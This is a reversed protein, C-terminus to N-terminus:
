IGDTHLLLIHLNLLNEREIERVKSEIERFVAYKIHECEIETIVAQSLNNLKKASSSFTIEKSQLLGIVGDTM